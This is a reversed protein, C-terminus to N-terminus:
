GAYQNVGILGTKSAADAESVHMWAKLTKAGNLTGAITITGRVDGTTASATTTVGAVVTSSDVAQDFWVSLLDSKEALYYPLGLVSGYGLNLTNTSANAAVTIAISSLYKFAKTGTATKTTGTATIAHLEKMKQFYTDYGTLVIDMAVVSSSHTVVSVLNRPVDLVWCLVAGDATTITATAPRGTKNLPATGDTAPTYTMTGAASPLNTSTADDVIADALALVPTGLDVKTLFSIPRGRMRTNARFLASNFGRGTYVYDATAITQRSSM